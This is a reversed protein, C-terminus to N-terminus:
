ADINPKFRDNCPNRLEHEIASISRQFLRSLDELSRDYFYREEFLKAREHNSWRKNQRVAMKMSEENLENRKTNVIAQSAKMAEKHEQYYKKNYEKKKEPSMPM